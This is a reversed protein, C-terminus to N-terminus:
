SDDRKIASTIELAAEAPSMRATDITQHASRYFPLRARYREELRAQEALLPRRVPDTQAGCRRLAVELPADLFVLHTRVAKALRVRTVASELAGGGLAIVAPVKELLESVIQEELARFHPEGQTSFIAHVAMAHKEELVSDADFFPWGLSQAVLPGVTSKGSGM